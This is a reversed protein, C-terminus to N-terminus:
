GMGVTRARYPPIPRATNFFFREKTAGTQNGLDGPDMSVGVELRMNRLWAVSVPPTKGGGFSDARRTSRSCESWQLLRNLAGCLQNESLTVAISDGITTCSAPHKSHQM